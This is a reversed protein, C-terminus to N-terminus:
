KLAEVISHYREESIKGADLLKKCYEKLKEDTYISSRIDEPAFSDDMIPMALEAPVGYYDSVFKQQKQEEPKAKKFRELLKM